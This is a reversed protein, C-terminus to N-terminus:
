APEKKRCAGEEPEIVVENPHVAGDAVFAAFPGTIAVAPVPVGGAEASETPYRVSVVM